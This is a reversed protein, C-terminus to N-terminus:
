KEMEDCPISLSNILEVFDPQFNNKRSDWVEKSIICELYNNGNILQTIPNDRKAEFLDKEMLNSKYQSYDNNYLTWMIHKSTSVIDRDKEKIGEKVWVYIPLDNEHLFKFHEIVAESRAQNQANIAIKQTQRLELGVFILSAILGIVGVIQFLHSYKSLSNISFISKNM